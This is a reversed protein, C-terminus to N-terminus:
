TKIGNNEKRVVEHRRKKMGELFDYPVRSRDINNRRNDRGHYDSGGSLVLGFKDALKKIGQRQSRSASYHYMELGDLGAEVLSEVFQVTNDITPHALIAIGGAQHVLEIAEAPTVKTKPVYAPGGTAIYKHFAELYSKTHGHRYLADAIHPRGVSGVGAAQAIEDFPMEMGLKKLKVVIKRARSERKEQLDYLVANLKVNDIDFLYGLIHLDLGKQETSMELGNILEPGSEPLLRAVERLGDITDHDTIAFAALSSKLVKKVMQDPDVLGDSFTTHIHLDIYRDM